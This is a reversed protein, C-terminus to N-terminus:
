ISCLPVKAKKGTEHQVEIDELKLLKKM